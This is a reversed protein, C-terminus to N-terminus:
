FDGSLTLALGSGPRADGAVRQRWDLAIHLSGGAAPVALTASPGLDLRGAGRQAAGWAGGGVALRMGGLAGVPRTARAAGDAYPEERDRLVVGAQGYGELRFGGPLGERDIGGVVGLGTGGPGGDLALRREATLRLPLPTPQWEGGLALEAGRGSLPATVRGYLAIHQVPDIAYAIRAGAQSGGLQGEGPAVPTGGAPRLAIWGSASWRQDMPVLRTAVAPDRTGSWYATAARLGAPPAPNAPGRVSFLNLMAIRMGAPDPAFGPVPTARRPRPLSAARLAAPASSPPPSAAAEAPRPLGAFERIAAPLSGAQPWLLLIRVGVWGAIVAAVFRLPRGRGTM